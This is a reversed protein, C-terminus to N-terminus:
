NRATVARYADVIGEGYFGNRATTGECTATFSADRGVDTYSQVGGAPCAHDAATRLLQHEVQNPNMGFGDRGEKHGWRSVILAAVGVAHPSAM